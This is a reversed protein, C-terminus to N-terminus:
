ASLLYNRPLEKCPATAPPSPHENRQPELQRQLMPGLGVGGARALHKGLYLDFLGGMVDGGDKGFLGGPELTQRMEQVLQSLFLAEFQRGLAPLATKDGQRVRRALGALDPEAQAVPGFVAPKLGDM